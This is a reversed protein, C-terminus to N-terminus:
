GQLFDPCSSLCPLFRSAPVSASAVSPHQKSAQQEQSACDTKEPNASGVITQFRGYQDNILFHGVLEDVAGDYPLM